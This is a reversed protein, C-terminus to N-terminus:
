SDALSHILVKAETGLVDPDDIGVKAFGVDAGVGSKLFRFAMGPVGM